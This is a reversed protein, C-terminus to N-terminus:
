TPDGPKYLSAPSARYLRVGSARLVKDDSGTEESKVKNTAKPKPCAPTVHGTEKCNHCTVNADFKCDETLHNKTCIECKSKTKDSASSKKSGTSSKNAGFKMLSNMCSKASEAANVLKQLQELNLDQVELIKEKLENQTPSMGQLCRFVLHDDATLKDIDAEKSLELLKQLFQSTLQGQHQQLEFYEQRRKILPYVQLFIEDLVSFCTKTDADSSFIPLHDILNQVKEKLDPSLCAKFYGHQAKLGATDMNSESHYTRYDEKWVRLRAPTDDQQLTDPRLATVPKCRVTATSDQNAAAASAGVSAVVDLKSTEILKSLDDVKKDLETEQQTYSASEDPNLEHLEDYIASIKVHQEHIKLWAQDVKIEFDSSRFVKYQQIATTCERSFQTLWKKHGGLSRVKANIAKTDPM